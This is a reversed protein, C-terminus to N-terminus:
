STIPASTLVICALASVKKKALAERIVTFAETSPADAAILYNLSRL